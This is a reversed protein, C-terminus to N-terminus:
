AMLNMKILYENYLWPKLTMTDAIPLHSIEAIENLVSNVWEVQHSQM